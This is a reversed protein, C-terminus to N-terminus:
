NSLFSRYIHVIATSRIEYANKSYPSPHQPAPIGLASREQCHWTQPGTAYALPYIELVEAKIVFLGSAERWDDESAIEAGL